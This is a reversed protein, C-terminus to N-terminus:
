LRIMPDDVQRSHYLHMGDTGRRRAAPRLLDSGHAAGPPMRPKAHTDADRRVKQLPRRNRFIFVGVQCRMSRMSHSRM